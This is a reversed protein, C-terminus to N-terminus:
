RLPGGWLKGVVEALNHRHFARGVGSVQWAGSYDVHLM